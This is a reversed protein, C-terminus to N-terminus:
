VHARGIEPNLPPIYVNCFLQFSIDSNLREILKKDSMDYKSKLFLLCIQTELSFIEKRGPKKFCKTKSFQLVLEEIPLLSRFLGLETTPFLIQHENFYSFESFALTQRIESYKM